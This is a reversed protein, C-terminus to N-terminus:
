RGPLDIRLVRGNAPQGDLAGVSIDAVYLRGDPGFGMVTPYTLPAAVPVFEANLSGPTAVDVRVIRGPPAIFPARGLANAFEAVYITGDPAVALGTGLNVGVAVAQRAGDPTVRWVWAGGPPYPAKTFNTLYLNGDPGADIGTLVPHFTSVDLIRRIRRGEPQSVDVEFVVSANGDAIYLKDNLVTVDYPLTYNYDDPIFRPPFRKQFAELDAVLQPRNAGDVRYVGTPWDPFGRTEGAAILVYLNGGVTALANVGFTDNFPGMISPLRDVVTQRQGAATIRSIRGTLSTQAAGAGPCGPPRDYAPLECGPPLNTTGPPPSFAAPPTGTEVVYLLGDPGWAFGRPNLLGSAVVTANAPPSPPPTPRPTAAPTPSPRVAASGDGQVEVIGRQENHFRCFYPYIGPQAFTFSFTDGVKMFTFDFLSGATAQASPTGNTVTHPITDEQTWTVVTGPTLNLRGPRYSFDVIRVDTRGSASVAADGAAAAPAAAQAGGAAPTGTTTEFAVGLVIVLGILALGFLGLILTLGLARRATWQM